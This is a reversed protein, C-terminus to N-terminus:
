SLTSSPEPISVVQDGDVSGQRTSLVTFTQCGSSVLYPRNPEGVQSQPEDTLMKANDDKGMWVVRFEEGTTLIGISLGKGYFAELVRLDDYLEGLVNEHDMVGNGPIKIDVVAVPVGNLKVIRINPRVGFVGYETMTVVAFGSVFALDGFLHKVYDRVDAESSYHITDYHYPQYSLASFGSIKNFAEMSLLGFSVETVTAPPHDKATQPKSPPTWAIHQLAYLGDALTRRPGVTSVRTHTRQFSEVQSVCM